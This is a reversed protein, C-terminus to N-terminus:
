NHTRKACPGINLVRYRGANIDEITTQVTTKVHNVCACILLTDDPKKIVTSTNGCVIEIDLDRDYVKCGEGKGGKEGKEGPLGQDGKDGPFGKEGAVGPKGAVGNDGQTGKVGKVRDYGGCGLLFFTMVSCVLIKMNGRESFLRLYLTNQVFRYPKEFRKEFEKM